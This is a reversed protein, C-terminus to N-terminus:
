DVQLAQDMFSDLHHLLVEENVVVTAGAMRAYELLQKEKGSAFAIIPLHATEKNNRVSKIVVPVRGQRELLDAFVLMPKEKKALEPLENVDNCAHVRYGLDQLRNLLQSGPLLKEYFLLALPQTM